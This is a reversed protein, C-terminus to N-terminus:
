LNILSFYKIISGTHLGFKMILIVCSYYTTGGPHLVIREREPLIIVKDGVQPTSLKTAIYGGSKNPILLVKDGVEPTGVRQATYGEKRNPILIVKDGVEITM